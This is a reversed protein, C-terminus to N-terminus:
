INKKAFLNETTSFQHFRNKTKSAKVSIYIKLGTLDQLIHNRQRCYKVMQHFSKCVSLMLCIHSNIKESM